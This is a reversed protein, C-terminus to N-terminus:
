SIQARPPPATDPCRSVLPDSASIQGSLLSPYPQLITVEAFHSDQGVANLQNDTLVRWHRCYSYTQAICHELASQDDGGQRDKMVERGTM